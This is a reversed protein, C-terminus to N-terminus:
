FQSIVGAASATLSVAGDDTVLWFHNSTREPTAMISRLPFPECHSRSVNRIIGSMKAGIFWAMLWWLIGVGGTGAGASGGAAGGAGAQAHVIGIM